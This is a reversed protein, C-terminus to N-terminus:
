GKKKNQQMLDMCKQSQEGRQNCLQNECAFTDLIWPYKKREENYLKGFPINM